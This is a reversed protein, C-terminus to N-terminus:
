WITYTSTFVSLNVHIGVKLNDPMESRGAYGPDMTIFIACTPDIKMETGYFIFKQVSLSIARQVTLIQQAVM